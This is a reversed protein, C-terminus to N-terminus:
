KELFSQVFRLLKAEEVEWSYKQPIIERALNSDRELKKRDNMYGLIIKAVANIDTYEVLNVCSQKGLEERLSKFAPYIVSKGLALYEFIKIPLSNRFIFNDERLDVFIDAGCLLKPLSSYDVYDHFDIELNKNESKFSEFRIKSKEDIFQGIILMKIKQGSLEAVIKCASLFRFFGRSDDLIGSFGITFPHDSDVGNVNEYFYKPPFYSVIEYKLNPSFRLYRKLKNKEGCILGDIKQVALFNILSLFFYNWWRKASKYKFAVNEPYWESVDYFIKVQPSFKKKLRSAAFIPLPEGCFIIEPNIENLRKVFNNIKEEKNLNIGDFSLINIKDKVCVKEEASSIIFYNYGSNM